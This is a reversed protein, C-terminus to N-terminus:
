TLKDLSTTLGALIKGDGTFTGTATYYLRSYRKLGAPLPQPEVIFSDANIQALTRSPYTVLDVFNTDDDSTQFKTVISTGGAMTGGEVKAFVNLKRSIDDGAGKHDLHFDSAGTAVAQAESFM